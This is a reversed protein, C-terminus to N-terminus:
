EVEMGKNRLAERLANAANSGAQLMTEKNNSVKALEDSLAARGQSIMPGVMFDSSVNEAANKYVDAIVQDGFYKKKENLAPNNFGSLAAPFLGGESILIKLSDPNTNLWLMFESAEKPYKCTKSVVNMSGGVDAYPGNGTDSPSPAVAWKGSQKTMSTEFQATFWSAFNVSAIEDHNMASLFDPTWMDVRKLLGEDLLTQYRKAVKQFAPGDLTIKWHGSATGYWSGGEQFFQADFLQIEDPSFQGIYLNPDAAHLKRAADIYEDWTKPIAVGYKEFLDKRYILAIPSSDQPVGYVTNNMAVTKWSSKTFEKEHSGVYQGIDYVNGDIALDTLYSADLQLIDAATGAMIQTAYNNQADSSIRTYQVHIKPHTKNWLDVAKDIGPVWASFTLNVVGDGAPGTGCGAVLVMSLVAAAAAALRSYTQRGM